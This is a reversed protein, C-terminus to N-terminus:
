RSYILYIHLIELSHFSILSYIQLAFKFYKSLVHEHFLNWKWTLIQLLTHWKWKLHHINWKAFFMLIHPHMWLSERFIKEVVRHVHIWFGSYVTHLSHVILLSMWPLVSVCSSPHSLMYTHIPPHKQVCRSQFVWDYPFSVPSRGGGTTMVVKTQGPDHIVSAIFNLSKSACKM